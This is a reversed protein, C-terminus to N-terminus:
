TYYNVVMDFIITKPGETVCFQFKSNKKTFELTIAISVFFIASTEEARWDYLCLLKLFDKAGSWGKLKWAHAYPIAWTWVFVLIFM